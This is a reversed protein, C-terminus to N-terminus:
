LDSVSIRYPRELVQRAQLVNSLCILPKWSCRRESLPISLLKAVKGTRRHTVLIKAIRNTVDTGLLHLWCHIAAVAGASTM